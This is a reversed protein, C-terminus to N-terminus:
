AFLDIQGRPMTPMARYYLPGYSCHNTDRWVGPLVQRLGRYWSHGAHEDRVPMHADMDLGWREFEVCELPDHVDPPLVQVVRLCYAYWRGLGIPRLWAGPPPPSHATTM